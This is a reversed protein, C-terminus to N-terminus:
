KLLLAIQRRVYALRERRADRLTVLKIYKPMLRLRQISWKNELERIEVSLKEIFEELQAEEIMWEQIQEQVSQPALSGQIMTTEEVVPEPKDSTPNLTGVVPKTNEKDGCIRSDEVPNLSGTIKNDTGLSGDINAIAYLEPFQSM